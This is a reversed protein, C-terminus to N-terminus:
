FDRSECLTMLFRNRKDEVRIMQASLPCKNIAHGGVTLTLVKELCATRIPNSCKCLLRRLQCLRNVMVSFHFEIVKGLKAVSEGGPAYHDEMTEVHNGVRAVLLPFINGVQEEGAVVVMDNAIGVAKVAAVVLAKAM